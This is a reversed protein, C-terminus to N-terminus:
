LSYEHIALILWIIGYKQFFFTAFGTSFFFLIFSRTVRVSQLDIM